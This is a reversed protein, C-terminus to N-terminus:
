SSSTGARMGGEPPDRPTSEREEASSEPLAPAFPANAIRDDSTVRGPGHCSSVTLLCRWISMGMGRYHAAAMVMLAERLDGCEGPKQLAVTALHASEARRGAALDAGLCNAPRRSRGHGVPRWALRRASPSPAPLAVQTAMTEGLATHSWAPGAPLVPGALEEIGTGLLLSGLGALLVGLAPFWWITHSPPALATAPLLVM